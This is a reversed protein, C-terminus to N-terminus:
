GQNIAARRAQESQGVADVSRARGLGSVIAVARELIDLDTASLAALDAAIAATRRARGSRVVRRGEKTACLVVARQDDEGARRRALGAAVLAKATRSIAPASVQEMAALATVRIPGAFVLVSLASLREPSLGAEVDAARARRLLRLSVAHLKEAIRGRRSADSSM